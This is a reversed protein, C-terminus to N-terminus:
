NVKFSILELDFDPEIPPTAGFTTRSAYKVVRRVEPAYWATLTRGGSGGYATAGTSRWSQEIIIKTAAFTGAAVRVTEKGLARGRAECVQRPGLCGPDLIAPRGIPGMAPVSGLLQLYPSFVAAGQAILQGGKGHKTELPKGGDVTSLDVIEDRGAAGVTVVITHDPEHRLEGVRRITSLRYTWSDGSKPLTWAVEPAPQRAPAASAPASQQQQPAPRAGASEMAMIRRRALVAFDGNPYRELYARLEGADRSDRVSEWFSIEAPDAALAVPACALLLVLIFRIKMGSLVDALECGVVPINM